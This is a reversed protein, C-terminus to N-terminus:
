ARQRDQLIQRRELAVVYRRLLQVSQSSENHHTFAVILEAGERGPRVRVVSGPLTIPRGSGIELSVVVSSARSPVWFPDGRWRCRVGSESIDITEVSGRRGAAILEARRRIPVRVHRRHNIAEGAAVERVKGVGGVAVAGEAEGDAGVSVRWAAPGTDVFGDVTGALSHMVTDSPWRLLIAEGKSAVTVEGDLLPAALLLHPRPQAIHDLVHSRLSDSTSKPFTIILGEGRDPWEGATIPTDSM